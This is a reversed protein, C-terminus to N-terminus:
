SAGFDSANLTVWSTEYRTRCRSNIRRVGSVILDLGEAKGRFSFGPVNEFLFARLRVEELGRLFENITAARPDQLRKSDGPYWYGSKSFPQCPPGGVLIDVDGARLGAM